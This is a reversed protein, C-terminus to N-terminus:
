GGFDGLSRIGTNRNIYQGAFRKQNESQELIEAVARPVKIGSVGRQIQYTKGNYTVTVPHSYRETDYPLPPIEVRDEES